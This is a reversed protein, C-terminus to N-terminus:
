TCSCPACSRMNRPCCALLGVLQTDWTFAYDGFSISIQLFLLPPPEAGVQPTMMFATRHKAGFPMRVAGAFNHVLLREKGARRMEGRWIM